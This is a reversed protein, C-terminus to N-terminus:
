EMAIVYMLMFFGLGLIAVGVALNAAGALFDRASQSNAPQDIAERM